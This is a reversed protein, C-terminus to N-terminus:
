KQIRQLFKRFNHVISPALLYNFIINIIKELVIRSQPLHDM